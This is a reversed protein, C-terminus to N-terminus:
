QRAGEAAADAIAVGLATGAAGEGGLSLEDWYEVAVELEQISIASDTADFDGAAKYRSPLCGYLVWAKAPLRPAVEFPGLSGGVGTVGISAASAFGGGAFAGSALSTPSGVLATATGQLALLGLAAAASGEGERLPSHALFHVLLLDRRPTAGGVSLAHRSGVGGTNGTLAAMFWRYFDSDYWKSARMLTLNSAEASKIVKRSFFWNAENITTIETTIEPASIASFGLLPTFLPVALPEIPAIDMLWFPYNQLYDTLSSRAM